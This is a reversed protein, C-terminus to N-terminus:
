TSHWTRVHGVSELIGVRTEIEPRPATVLPPLPRPVPGVGQGGDGGQDPGGVVGVAAVEAVIEAEDREIVVHARVAGTVVGIRPGDTLM